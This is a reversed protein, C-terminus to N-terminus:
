PHMFATVRYNPNSYSAAGKAYLFKSYDPYCLVGMMIKWYNDFDSAGMHDCRGFTVLSRDIDTDVRKTDDCTLSSLYWTESQDKFVITSSGVTYSCTVDSSSTTTEETLAITVGSFVTKTYAVLSKSSGAAESYTDSLTSSFSNGGAFVSLATNRFALSTGTGDITFLGQTGSGTLTNSLFSMPQTYIDGDNTTYLYATAFSSTESVVNGSFILKFGGATGTFARQFFFSNLSAATNSSMTLKGSYTGTFLYIGRIKSGTKADNNSFTTTDILCSGDVGKVVVAKLLESSTDGRYKITNGILSWGSGSLSVGTDTYKVVLNKMQFGTGSVLKVATSDSTPQDITFGSLVVNDAAISFLTTATSTIITGDNSEGCITVSKSVSITSSATYTGTMVKIVAGSAASTLASALGAEGSEATVTSTPSDCPDSAGSILGFSNALLLCVSHRM